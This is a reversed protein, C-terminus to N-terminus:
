PKLSIQEHENTNKIKLTKSKDESKIASKKILTSFDLKDDFLLRNMATLIGILSIIRIINSLDSLFILFGSKREVITFVLIFRSTGQGFWAFGFMKFM